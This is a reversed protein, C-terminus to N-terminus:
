YGSEFFQKMTDLLKELSPKTHYYDSWLEREGLRLVAFYQWYDDGYDDSMVKTVGIFYNM